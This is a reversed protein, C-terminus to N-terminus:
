FDIDSRELKAIVDQRYAPDRDYRPDGMAQVLEAQSRFIDASRAPKGQLTEGEYGMADTYRFYLAQLAFNIAPMNGSDILQDFAEIEPQSLNESAWSTLQSYAADGGVANKIQNVQTESLEVGQSEQQQELGGIKDQFRLYAEVLDRSSMQSFQEMSEESIEGNEYFEQNVNALFDVAYDEDPDEESEEEVEEESYEEDSYEDDPDAKGLKKQLNIYAEELEQANKYKGALLSEQAALMEEGIALSEAEDSEISSMVEATPTADYTLTESM